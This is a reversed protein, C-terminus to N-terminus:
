KVSYLIEYLTVQGLYMVSGTIVQLYQKDEKSLLKEEPQDLSLESGVGPTYTPNCNGMGYRELLSKHIPQVRNAPLDYLPTRSCPFRKRSSRLIGYVIHNKM